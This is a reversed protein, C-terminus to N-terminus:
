ANVNPQYNGRLMQFNKDLTMSFDKFNTWLAMRTEFLYLFGCRSAMILPVQPCIVFLSEAIKYRKTVRVGKITIFPM